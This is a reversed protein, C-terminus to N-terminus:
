VIEVLEVDFVLDKGALPHNADLTVTEDTLGTVTLNMQRGDPTMGQLQTGVALNINTPINSRPVEQVGEPQHPGYAEAAPVTVTSKDGVKMGEIEKELGPIIQGSGITFELPERGASTDFQSGDTLTGTYHIRVTDGNKAESM